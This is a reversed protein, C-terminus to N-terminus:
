HRFSPAKGEPYPFQEHRIVGRRDISDYDLGRAEPWFLSCREGYGSM